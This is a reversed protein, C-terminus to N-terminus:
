WWGKKPFLKEKGLQFSYLLFGKFSLLLFFQFHALRLLTSVGQKKLLTMIPYAFLFQGISNILLYLPFRGFSAKLFWLAAFLEPGFTFFLSPRVRGRVTSYFRWWGLKEALSHQFETLVCIFVAAPLYRKLAKSGLLPLTFWPIIMMILLLFKPKRM